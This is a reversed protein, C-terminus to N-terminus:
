KTNRSTSSSSDDIRLLLALNDRQIFLTMVFVALMAVANWDFAARDFTLWLAAYIVVVLFTAPRGTAQQCVHDL